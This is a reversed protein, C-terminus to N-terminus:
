LHKEHVLVQVSSSLLLLLLSLKNFNYEVFASKRKIIKELKSILNMAKIKRMCTCFSHLVMRHVGYYSCWLISVMIHILMSHQAMAIMVWIHPFYCWVLFVDSLWFIFSVLFPVRIPIPNLTQKLTREWSFRFCFVLFMFCQFLISNANLFRIEANFFWSFIHKIPLCVFFCDFLAKAVSMSISAAPSIAAM